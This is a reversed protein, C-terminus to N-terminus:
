ESTSEAPNWFNQDDAHRVMTWYKKEFLQLANYLASVLGEGKEDWMEMRSVWGPPTTKEASVTQMLPAELEDYKEDQLAAVQTSLLINRLRTGYDLANVIENEKCEWNLRSIVAMSEPQTRCRFEGQVAGNFLKFPAVYRGGSIMSEIFTTRETETLTVEEPLDVADGLAIDATSIEDASSSEVADGLVTGPDKSAARSMLADDNAEKPVAAKIDGAVEVAAKKDERQYEAVDNSSISVSGDALQQELKTKLTDGDKGKTTQM